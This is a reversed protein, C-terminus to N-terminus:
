LLFILKVINFLENTFGVIGNNLIFIFSNGLLFMVTEAMTLMIYLGPDIGM